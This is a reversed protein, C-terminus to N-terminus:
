VNVECKVASLFTDAETLMEAGIMVAVGSRKPM